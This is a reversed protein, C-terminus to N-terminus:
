SVSRVRLYYLISRMIRISFVIIGFIYIIFIIWKFMSMDMSFFDDMTLMLYVLLLFPASFLVNTFMIKRAHKSQNMHDSYIRPQKHGQEYDQSWLSWIFLSSNSSFKLDWGTEHHMDFYTKNPFYQFDVCYSVHRPTGKKFYFKLGRKSIRYLNYGKREMGELWSELTDPADFWYWRRKMILHGAGFVDKKLENEVLSEGGILKKNTRNIKTISYITIIWLGIAIIGGLGTIIWYPSPVFELSGGIFLNLSLMVLSVSAHFLLYIFIGIYVNMIIRNHHIIGDRAPFANIQEEKDENVIVHWSRHSYLHKWGEEVLTTSLVPATTKDFIIQYVLQQATSKEFKFQRTVTNVKKFLYGNAAMTGLWEETREIDYSWFFKFFKKIM